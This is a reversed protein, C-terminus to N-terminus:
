DLCVSVPPADSRVPSIRRTSRLRGRADHYAAAAALRAAPASAPPISAFPPSTPPGRHTEPSPPSGASPRQSQQPKRRRKRPALPATAETQGAASSGLRGRPAPVTPVIVDITSPLLRTGRRSGLVHAAIATMKACTRRVPVEGSERLPEKASRQFRTARREQRPLLKASYFGCKTVAGEDLANM